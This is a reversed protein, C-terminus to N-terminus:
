ATRKWICYTRNRMRAETEGDNAVTIIHNHNASVNNDLIDLAGGTNGSVTITAANTTMSGRGVQINYDPYGWHETTLPGIYGHSHSGTWTFWHTHDASQNGSSANHNHAKNASEQIGGEFALAQGGETRFTIGEDAWEKTWTSANNGGFLDSFFINPLADGPYQVYRAGIPVIWKKLADKTAALTTLKELTDNAFLSANDIYEAVAIFNGEVEAGSLPANKTSISKGSGYDQPSRLNSWNFIGM